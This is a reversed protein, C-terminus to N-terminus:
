PAEVFMNSVHILVFLESVPAFKHTLKSTLTWDVFVVFIISWSFKASYIKCEESATLTYKMKESIFM